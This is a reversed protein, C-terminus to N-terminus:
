RALVATAARTLGSAREIASAAKQLAAIVPGFPQAGLQDKPGSLSIAAYTTDARGRVPVAICYLGEAVEEDDIAFGQEGVKALTARLKDPDTITHPTLAVFVGNSLYTERAQAPLSSILVKGVGSCYAELQSGERTFLGLGSGERVLYTAMDAELVALHATALFEAALSRLVPRGSRRLIAQLDVKAALDVLAAGAAYVGRASRTVLGQRELTLVIRRATSESFGLDRVLSRFTEKGEGRVIAELLLM